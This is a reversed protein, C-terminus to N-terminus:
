DLLKCNSKFCGWPTHINISKLLEVDSYVKRFAQTMGEWGFYKTPITFMDLGMWTYDFNELKKGKKMYEKLRKDTQEPTVDPHLKKGKGLIQLTM